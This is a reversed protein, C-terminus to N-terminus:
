RYISLTLKKTPVQSKNDFYILKLSGLWIDVSFNVEWLDNNGAQQIATLTKKVYRRYFIKHAGLDINLLAVIM